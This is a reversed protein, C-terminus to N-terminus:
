VGSWATLTATNTPQVEQAIRILNIADFMDGFHMHFSVNKEHSDVHLRDVGGKVSLHPVTSQVM